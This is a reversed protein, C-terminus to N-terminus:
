EVPMVVNISKDSEPWHVIVNYLEWAEMEKYAQVYVDAEGKPGSIAYQLSAEGNEGSTQISGMVFYGAEIPEGVIEIVESNQSIAVMSQDFAEGKLMNGILIFFLPFIVFFIILGANRWKKQTQKFHEISRWTRNRWAWENGKAGLIFFMFINVLPVFMLLAIYTSNGIGWIWNLLFAGWNWGKIEPPVVSDKGLGSVYEQEKSM